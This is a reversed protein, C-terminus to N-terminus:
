HAAARVMERACEAEAGCIPTDFRAATAARFQELEAPASRAINRREDPDARLDFLEESEPGGESQCRIYKHLAASTLDIVAACPRHRYHTQHLTRRPQSPRMLSVGAWSWPTSLGVRDLITPAIDVHTAFALNRYAALDSDYIILPVRIDSQYLSRGHLVAGKEGLQEGHDGTIMVISNELYGKRELEAFIRQVMADGQIVGNDYNNSVAEVESRSLAPYSPVGDRDFNAPMQRGHDAVIAHVDLSAEYRRFEEYKTGLMHPSMLFIFFFRPKGDFQELREFHAILEKDSEADTCGVSTCDVLDDVDAAYYAWLYRWTRHDGGLYYSTRYGARKLVSNLKFTRSSLQHFPLSTLLSAIGCYSSACTSLAMDVNAAQGNSVLGALFPATNRPYGNMSLRDARLSDLMIVVVNKRALDSRVAPYEAEAQRSDLAAATREGDWEILDRSGAANFFDLMPEGRTKSPYLGALSVAAIASVGFIGLPHALDSASWRERSHPVFRRWIDFWLAAFVLWVGVILLSLIVLPPFPLWTLGLIAALAAPKSIVSAIVSPTLNDGWFLNSYYSGGYITLAAVSYLGALGSAVLVPARSGNACARRVFLALMLILSSTSVVLLAAVGVAGWRAGYTSRYLTLLLVPCLALLIGSVLPAGRLCIRAVRM